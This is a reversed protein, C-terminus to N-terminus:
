GLTKLYALLHAALDGNSLLSRSFAQFCPALRGRGELFAYALEELRRAAFAGDALKEPLGPCHSRVAELAESGMVAPSQSVGRCEVISSGCCEGRSGDPSGCAADVGDFDINYLLFFEAVLSFDEPPFFGRMRELLAALKVLHFSEDQRYAHWVFPRAALCSRAFSEEGRVFLVDCSALLADWTGQPLGPLSVLPFSCEERSYASLFSAAGRGSALYVALKGGAAHSRDMARVVPAFDKEYSFVLVNCSSPDFSPLYEGLRGAAEARDALLDLFPRDLMLGGTRATFGPMFNVKKVSASRTGSKLLHFDEAWSEATLYEVNIIHATRGAPLGGFLYDDLWDPRGCQFCELIIRADHSRCWRTCTGADNWDLVDWGCYRQFPVAADLGPAMFSFSALDSVALALRLSGDLDSLARALRYVFGIDGYNDVVKCLLLIEVIPM